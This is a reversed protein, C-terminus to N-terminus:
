EAGEEDDSQRALAVLAWVALFGSLGLPLFRFLYLTDGSRSRSLYREGVEQRAAVTVIQAETRQAAQAVQILESPAPGTPEYALGAISIVISSLLGRIM